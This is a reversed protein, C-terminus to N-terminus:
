AHLEWYIRCLLQAFHLLVLLLFVVEVLAVKLNLLNFLLAYRLNMWEDLNRFMMSLINGAHTIILMSVIQVVNYTYFPSLIPTELICM